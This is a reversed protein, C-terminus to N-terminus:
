CSASCAKAPKDSCGAPPMRQSANQISESTSWARDWDAGAPISFPILLPAWTMFRKIGEPIVCSEATPGILRGAQDDFRDMGLFSLNVRLGMHDIWIMIRVPWLRSSM